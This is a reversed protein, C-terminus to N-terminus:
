GVSVLGKMGYGYHGPLHCAYEVDGTEGFTFTTTRTAGAPVSIEGPVRGHHHRQRGEEHREHVTEDGIIFEHDIPDDNRIVFTVAEGQEFAARELAFASHEISVTVRPDGQTTAAGSSGCAPLCPLALLAAATMGRM